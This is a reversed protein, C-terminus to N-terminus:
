PRLVYGRQVRRKDIRAVEGVFAEPVLLPDFRLAGRASGIGGWARMIQWDGFLDRVVRAEYYRGMTANEWRHVPPMIDKEDFTKM